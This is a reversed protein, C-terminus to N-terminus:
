ETAPTIMARIREELIAPPPVTVLKTRMLSSGEASYQYKSSYSASVTSVKMKASASLFGVKGSASANVQASSRRTESETAMSISMKVEILTDVFQYFTPTFGLELLSYGTPSGDGIHILNPRESTVGGGEEDAEPAYGAMLRAIKLSTLDLEYQAEAIGVGMSKVMEPFPVNLLDQGVSM